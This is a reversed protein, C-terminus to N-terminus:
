KFILLEEFYGNYPSISLRTKWIAMIKIKVNQWQELYLYFVACLLVCVFQKWFTSSFTVQIQSFEQRRMRSFSRFDTCSRCPETQSRQVFPTGGNNVSKENVPEIKFVSHKFSSVFDQYSNFVNLFLSMTCSYNFVFTLWLVRQTFKLM